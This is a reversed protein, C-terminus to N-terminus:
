GVELRREELETGVLPERQHQVEIKVQREFLNGAREPPRGRGGFGTDVSGSALQPRVQGELLHESTVRSSKRRSSPSATSEMLPGGLGSRGSRTREARTSAGSSCSWTHIAARAAATIATIRTTKRSIPLGSFRPGRVGPPSTCLVGLADGPGEAAVLGLGVTDGSAAKMHVADDAIM